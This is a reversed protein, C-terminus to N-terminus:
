LRYLHWWHCRVLSRLLFPSGEDASIGETSIAARRSSLSSFKLSRCIFTICTLMMSKNPPHGQCGFTHLVVYYPRASHCWAQQHGHEQRGARIYENCLSSRSPGLVHPHPGAPKGFIKLHRSMLTM